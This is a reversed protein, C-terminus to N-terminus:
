CTRTCLRWGRCDRTTFFAEAGRVEKGCPLARHLCQLALKRRSPRGQHVSHQSPGGGHRGGHIFDLCIATVQTVCLQNDKCSVVCMSELSVSVCSVVGHLCPWTKYMFRASKMARVHLSPLDKFMIHSVCELCVQWGPRKVHCKWVSKMVHVPVGPQSALDKLM